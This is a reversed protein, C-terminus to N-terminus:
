PAGICIDVEERGARYDGKQKSIVDMEGNITM